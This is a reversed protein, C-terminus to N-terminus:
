FWQVVTCCVVPCSLVDCYLLACSHPECLLVCVHNNASEVARVDAQVLRGLLDQGGPVHRAGVPPSGPIRLVLHKAFKSGGNTRLQYWQPDVLGHSALETAMGLVYDNGPLQKKKGRTTTVMPRDPNNLRCM